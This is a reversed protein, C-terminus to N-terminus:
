AATEEARRSTKQTLIRAKEFDADPSIGVVALVVAVSVRLLRWTIARAVINMANKAHLKSQISTIHSNVTAESRCLREAMEKKTLGAALLPLYRREAESLEEPQEDKSFTLEEM